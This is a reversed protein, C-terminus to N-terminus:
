KPQLIPRQWIEDQYFDKSNTFVLVDDRVTFSWDVLSLVERLRSVFGDQSFGFTVLQSLEAPLPELQPQPKRREIRYPIPKPAHWEVALLELYRIIAHEVPVERMTLAPVPTFHLRGLLERDTKRNPADAAHTTFVGFTIAAILLLLAKM